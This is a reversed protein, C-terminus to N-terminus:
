MVETLKRKLFLDWLKFLSGFVRNQPTCILYTMGNNM